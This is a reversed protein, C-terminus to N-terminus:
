STAGDEVAAPTAVLGNRFIGLLSAAALLCSAVVSFALGWLYPMGSMATRVLHIAAVGACVGGGHVAVKRLDIGWRFIRRGLIGVCVTYLLYAILTGYAAGVYGVRPILVFCLGINVAASVVGFTVMVRTRGVIEFPKHAFTGINFFFVGALVIPMVMSGERFQAGLLVKAIDHHLLFTVGVCLAGLLFLNEVITGIVRGIRDVDGSGSIGMLYPHLTITVPVVMLAAVGAILRYSADYIGVPGPGSLYNLVYRDGVDLLISSFYWLTMPLGFGLFATALRRIRESLLIGLLRTPSPFGAQAWMFPLLVGNSVVVSWFMLTGDMRFVASVLLLRLALTVVSDILKYTVFERARNEMPFVASLIEFVSTIVVFLVVPLLFRRWPSSLVSHLVIFAAVGLVTEVFFIMVTSLSVAERIDRRGESSQEQPIFKGISQTLWTTFMLKVPTAVVLFLSYTGFETPDFVRTFVMSTVLTLAAPVLSGPTYTIVRRLLSSRPPAPSAPDIVDVIEGVVWGPPRVV